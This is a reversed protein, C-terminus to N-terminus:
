RQLVSRAGLPAREQKGAVATKSGFRDDLQLSPNCYNWYEPFISIHIRGLGNLRKTRERVVMPKGGVPSKYLRARTAHGNAFQAILEVQRRCGESCM